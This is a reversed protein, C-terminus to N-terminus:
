QGGVLIMLINAVKQESKNLHSGTFASKNTQKDKAQLGSFVGDVDDDFISEAEVKQKCKEKPHVTLEAVIDINHDFLIPEFTRKKRAQKQSPKITETAFIDNEFFIQAKSIVVQQSNFKSENKRSKHDLFLDAEDEM